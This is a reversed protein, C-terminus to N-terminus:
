EKKTTGNVGVFEINEVTDVNPATTPQEPPAARQRQLSLLLAGILADLIRPIFDDHSTQWVILFAAMFIAIVCWAPLEKLFHLVIGDQRPPNAVTIESEAM